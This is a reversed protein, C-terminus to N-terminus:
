VTAPIFLNLNKPLATQWQDSDSSVWPVTYIEKQWQSDYYCSCKMRHTLFVCFFYLLSAHIHHFFFSDYFYSPYIFISSPQKTTRKGATSVPQSSSCRPSFHRQTSWFLTCAQRCIELIIASPGSNRASIRTPKRFNHLFFRHHFILLNALNNLHKLKIAFSITFSHCLCQLFVVSLQYVYYWQDELIESLTHWM